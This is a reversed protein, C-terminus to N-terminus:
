QLNLNFLKSEADFFQNLPPLTEASCFEEGKKILILEHLRLIGAVANLDIDAGPM